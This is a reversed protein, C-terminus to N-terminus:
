RSAAAAAAPPAPELRVAIAPPDLRHIAGTSADVAFLVGPLVFAGIVMGAVGNGLEDLGSKGNGGIAAGAVAGAPLGIFNLWTNRSASRTLSIKKAVYGDKEILVEADETRRSLVLDVPSTQREGAVTVTAGPPDTEVHITQRGGNVLTACGLLPSLSLAFAFPLACRIRM